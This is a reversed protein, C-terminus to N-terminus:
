VPQNSIAGHTNRVDAEKSLYTHFMSLTTTIAWAKHSLIIM